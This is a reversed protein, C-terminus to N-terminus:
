VGYRDNEPYTPSVEDPKIFVDVKNPFEVVIIEGHVEVFTTMDLNIVWSKYEGNKVILRRKKGLHNVLMRQVKKMKLESQYIIIYDEGIEM